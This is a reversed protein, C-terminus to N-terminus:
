ATGGPKVARDEALSKAYGEGREHSVRRRLGQADIARYLDHRDFEARDAVAAVLARVHELDDPYDVTWRLDSRDPSEVMKHRRMGNAPKRMWPTVHERESALRAERWARELADMTFAEVSLGDPFTPPDLNSVYDHGGRELEALATDVLEADMLPCDGTLRVVHTAGVGLAAQYYRDLVDDLSGRFCEIGHDALATALPEDSHDTSTAVVLRDIRRARRVRRTMFVIMPLGGLEELVKGPFRSSSMRAQVIVVRNM